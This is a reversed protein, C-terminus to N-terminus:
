WLNTREELANWTLDIHERLRSLLIFSVNFVQVVFLKRGLDLTGCLPAGVIAAQPPLQLQRKGGLICGLVTGQLQSAIASINVLVYTIM